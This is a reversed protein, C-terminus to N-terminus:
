KTMQQALTDGRYWARLLAKNEHYSITDLDDTILVPDLTILLTVHCM